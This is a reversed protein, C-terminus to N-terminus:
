APLGSEEGPRLKVDEPELSRFVLVRKRARTFLVNLRRWGLKTNIPGFRQPVPGGPERPGYTMSIFIVDREDGQVNELNKIFLPERQTQMRETFMRGFPDSRLRQELLEEIYERQEFNMTAVGVSEHPRNKAHDILAEVIAM